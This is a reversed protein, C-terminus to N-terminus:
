RPLHFTRTWRTKTPFGIVTRLARGLFSGVDTSKGDSVEGGYSWYIVSARGKIMAAPLYEWFRSDHSHDRNDGMCFYSAAPVTLPGLNDRRRVESPLGPQNPFVRPDRHIAYTGDDVRQGNVYLQKALIEIRDGPLGVCRKVLDQSPDEVSRFIVIDGRRVDRAPMLPLGDLWGEQGYIFRNVFLHDGVLLTNEMSGSPIYFTQLVFTNAFKLFLVAIVIAELYERLKSKHPAGASPRGGADGSRAKTTSM